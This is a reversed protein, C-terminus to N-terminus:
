LVVSGREKRHNGGRVCLSDERMGRDGGLMLAEGASSAVEDRYSWDACNISPVSGCAVHM